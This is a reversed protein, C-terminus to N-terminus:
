SVTFNTFTALRHSSFIGHKTFDLFNPFNAQDSSEFHHPAAGDLSVAFDTATCKVLLTHKSGAAIPPGPVIFDGLNLTLQTGHSFGRGIIATRLAPGSADVTFLGVIVAFVVFNQGDRYRCIIGESKQWTFEASIGTPQTAMGTEIVAAAGPGFLGNVDDGERDGFYGLCPTVCMNVGGVQQIGLSGGGPVHEWRPTTPTPVPHTDPQNLWFPNGTRFNDTIPTAAVAPPLVNTVPGIQEWYHGNYRFTCSQRNRPTTVNKPTKAPATGDSWACLAPWTFASCGVGNQQFCITITQGVAGPIIVPTNVVIGTNGGPLNIDIADYFFPNITTLPAISTVNMRRVWTGSTTSRSWLQFQTDGAFRTESSRIIKGPRSWNTQFPFPHDSVCSRATLIAPNDNDVGGGRLFFYQPATYKLTAPDIGGFIAVNDFTALWGIQM